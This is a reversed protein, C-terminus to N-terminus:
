LMAMKSWPPLHLDFMSIIYHWHEIPILKITDVPIMRFEKSGLLEPFKDQLSEAHWLHNVTHYSQCWSKHNLQFQPMMFLVNTDCEVVRICYFCRLVVLHSWFNSSKFTRDFIRFFKRIELRSMVCSNKLIKPSSFSDNSDFISNELFYYPPLAQIMGFIGWGRKSFDTSAYM